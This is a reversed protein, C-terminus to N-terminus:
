KTNPENGLDGTLYPDVIGIRKCEAWQVAVLYTGEKTFSTEEKLKMFFTPDKLKTPVAGNLFKSSLDGWEKADVSDSCNFVRVHAEYSLDTRDFFDEEEDKDKGLENTTPSTTEVQDEPIGPFGVEKLSQSVSGKTAM